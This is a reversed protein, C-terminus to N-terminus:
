RDSATGTIDDEWKEKREGTEGRKKPKKSGGRQPNNQIPGPQMPRENQKDAGKCTNRISGVKGGSGQALSGGFIAKVYLV